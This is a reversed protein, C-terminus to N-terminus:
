RCYWGNGPSVEFSIDKLIPSEDTPYTFTVHDFHISGELDEDAIDPLFTMALETDIVENLRRM